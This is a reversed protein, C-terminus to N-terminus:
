HSRLTYRPSMAGWRIRLSLTRCPPCLRPLGALIAFVLTPTTYGRTRSASDAGLMAASIPSRHSIAQLADHVILCQLSCLICRTCPSRPRLLSETCAVTADLEADILTELAIREQTTLTTRRTLLAQM